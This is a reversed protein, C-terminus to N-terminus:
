DFSSRLSTEGCAVIRVALRETGYQRCLTLFGTTLGVSPLDPGQRDCHKM